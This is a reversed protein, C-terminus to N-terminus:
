ESPKEGSKHAALYFRQYDRTLTLAQDATFGRNLMAQYYTGIMFAVMEIGQEVLAVQLLRDADDTHKSNMEM